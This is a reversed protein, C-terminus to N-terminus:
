VPLGVAETLARAVYVRALKKRYGLAMDTNDLPKAPKSAADAVAEILERTIKNGTLMKAAD